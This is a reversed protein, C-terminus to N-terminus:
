PCSNLALNAPTSKVAVPMNAKYSDAALSNFNGQRMLSLDGFRFPSHFVFIRFQFLLRYYLLALDLEDEFLHLKVDAVQVGGVNLAFPDLTVEGLLAFDKLVRDDQEDRLDFPSQDRHGLNVHRFRRDDLVRPGGHDVHGTFRRGLGHDELLLGHALALVATPAALRGGFAGFVFGAM